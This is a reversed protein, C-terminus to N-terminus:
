WSWIAMYTETMSDNPGFGVGWGVGFMSTGVFPKPAQVTTDIELSSQGRSNTTVRYTGKLSWGECSSGKTCINKANIANFSYNAQQAPSPAIEAATKNTAKKNDSEKWDQRKNRNFEAKAEAKKAEFKEAAM